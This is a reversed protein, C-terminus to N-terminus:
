RPSERSLLKFSYFTREAATYLTLITFVIMALEMAERSFIGIILV